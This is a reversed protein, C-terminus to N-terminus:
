RGCITLLSKERRGATKGPGVCISQLAGRQERSAGGYDETRGREGKAGRGSRGLKKRLDVIATRTRLKCYIYYM